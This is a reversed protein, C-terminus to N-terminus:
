AQKIETKNLKLKKLLKESANGTISFIILAFWILMSFGAPINAIAIIKLNNKNFFYALITPIFYVILFLPIFTAYQIFTLSQLTTFFQEM